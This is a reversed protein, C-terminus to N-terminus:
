VGLRIGVSRRARDVASADVPLGKRRRLWEQYPAIYRFRPPLAPRVFRTAALTARAAREKVPGV